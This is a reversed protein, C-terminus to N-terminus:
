APAPGSARRPSCSSRGPRQDGRARARRVVRSRRLGRQDRVVRITSTPSGRTAIRTSRARDRPRPSVTLLRSGPPAAQAFMTSATTSPCSWACALARGGPQVQVARVDRGPLTTSTSATSGSRPWTSCRTSRGCPRPSRSASPGTLAARRDHEDRRDPDTHPPRPLGQRAAAVGDALGRPRRRPCSIRSRRTTRSPRQPRLLAALPYRHLTTVHRRRPARRPVAGIDAFWRPGGSRRDPSRCTRCRGPSGHSTRSFHPSTTAAAPTGAQGLSGLHVDGYLEPENGLELAEITTAHRPRRALQDAETSAVTASDAELNIGLTLRAGTATALAQTIAIWGPDADRQRRGPDAHGPVPWWTRDTTDGGIRLEPPQGGALNRILQVFVPDIHRPTPEPTAGPDRLIRALPGPFRASDPPQHRTAGVTVVPDRTAPPARAARDVRPALGVAISVLLSRPRSM